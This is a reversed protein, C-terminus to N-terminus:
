NSIISQKLFHTHNLEAQMLFLKLYCAHIQARELVPQQKYETNKMRQM